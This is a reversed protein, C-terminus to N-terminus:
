LLFPFVFFIGCFFLALYLTLWVWSFWAFSVILGVFRFKLFGAFLPASRCNKAFSRTFFFYLLFFLWLLFRLKLSLKQSRVFLSFNFFFFVIFCFGFLCFAVLFNHLLLVFYYFAAFYLMCFLFKDFVGQCLFSLMIYYYLQRSLALSFRLFSRFPRVPTWSSTWM